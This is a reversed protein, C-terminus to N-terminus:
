SVSTRTSQMPRTRDRGPRTRAARRCLPRAQITVSRSSARKESPAGTVAASTRALQVRSPAPPSSRGCTLRRTWDTSARRRGPGRWGATSSVRDVCWHGESMGVQGDGLADGIRRPREARSGAPERRRHRLALSRARGLQRDAPVVERREPKEDSGAVRPIEQVRAHVQQECAIRRREVVRGRQRVKLRHRQRPLSGM